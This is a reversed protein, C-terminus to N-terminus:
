DKGRTRLKNLLQQKEQDTLDAIVPELDWSTYDEEEEQWGNGNGMGVLLLHDSLGTQTAVAPHGPAAGARAKAEPAVTQTMPDLAPRQPDTLHTAAWLILGAIAPAGLLYYPLKLRWWPAPATESPSAPAAQALKLHMERNFDQWFREGPDPVPTAKLAAVVEKLAALEQRCASCAEVHAELRRRRFAPLEGDLYEPLWRKLLACRWSMNM